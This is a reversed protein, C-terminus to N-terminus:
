ENDSYLDSNFSEDNFNYNQIDHYIMGQDDGNMIVDDMLVDESEDSDIDALIDSNDLVGNVIHTNSDSDISNRGVVHSGSATGSIHSNSGGLGPPPGESATATANDTATTADCHRILPGPEISNDCDLCKWKKPPLIDTAKANAFYFDIDKATGPEANLPTISLFWQYGGQKMSCKYITYYTTVNGEYYGIRYYFGANNKIAKFHYDGNVVPNGAGEVHVITEKILTEEDDTM